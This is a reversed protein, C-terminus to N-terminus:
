IYKKENNIFPRPQCIPPTILVSIPTIKEITKLLVAKKGMGEPKQPARSINTNMHPITITFKSTGRLCFNMVNACTYNILHVKFAEREIKMKM